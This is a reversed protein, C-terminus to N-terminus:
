RTDRVGKGKAKFEKGGKVCGYKICYYILEASMEKRIGRKRATAIKQSDWIYTAVANSACYRAFTENFSQFSSFEDGVKISVEDGM